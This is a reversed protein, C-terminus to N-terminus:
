RIAEMRISFLLDAETGVFSGRVTASRRPRTLPHRSGTAHNM